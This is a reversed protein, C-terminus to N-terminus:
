VTRWVAESGPTDSNEDDDMDANMKKVWAEERATTQQQMERMAHLESRTGDLLARAGVLMRALSSSREDGSGGATALCSDGSDEITSLQATWLDLKRALGACESKWSADLEEAFLKEPEVVVQSPPARAADSRAREAQAVGDIWREFRQVAHEYRGGPDTLTWLGTFVNDLVQIKDELGSGAESRAAWARLALM